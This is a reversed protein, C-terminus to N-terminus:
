LAALITFFRDAMDIWSSQLTKKYMPHFEGEMRRKGVYIRDIEM